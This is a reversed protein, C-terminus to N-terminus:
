KQNSMLFKIWCTLMLYVIAVPCSFIDLRMDPSGVCLDQFRQKRCVRCVGPCPEGCVGICLHKCPLINECPHDCRRRDCIEYCKKSCQYHPCKWSCPKKCPNCPQSCSHSCDKRHVCSYECKYNCSQITVNVCPINVNHGCPLSHVHFSCPKHMRGQHCETCNGTCHHGCLLKVTCKKTCEKPLDESCPSMIKHGCLPFTKESLKSCKNSNLKYCKGEFIHGCDLTEKVHVKCRLSLINDSCKVFRKHGRACPLQKRVRKQCLTQKVIIDHDERTCEEKETHVSSCAGCANPCPHGCKLERDCPSSCCYESPDHYCPM